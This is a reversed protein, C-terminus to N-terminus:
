SSSSPLASPPPMLGKSDSNARTSSVMLELVSWVVEVRSDADALPLIPTSEGVRRGRLRQAANGCLRPPPNLRDICCAVRCSCFSHPHSSSWSGLVRLSLFRQHPLAPLLSLRKVLDSSQEIARV